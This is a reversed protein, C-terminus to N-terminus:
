AAGQKMRDARFGAAKFRAFYADDEEPTSTGAGIVERLSPRVHGREIERVVDAKAIHGAEITGLLENVWIDGLPHGRKAWPQSNMATFHVLFPDGDKPLEDMCNWRPDLAGVVETKSMFKLSSLKGYPFGEDLRKCIDRISWGCAKADLLSVASQWGGTTLVKAGDPFPTDWLGRIDSLVVMDSDLYVGRGLFGCAEPILFRQLSFSTPCRAKWNGPIPIRREVDLLPTVVANATRRIISSELVKSPLWHEEGGGIFIRPSNSM